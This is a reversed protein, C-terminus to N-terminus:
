EKEEEKEEKEKDEEEEQDIVIHFDNPRMTVSRLAQIQEKDLETVLCVREFITEAMSYWLEYLIQHSVTKIKLSHSM